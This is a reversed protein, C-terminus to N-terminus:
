FRGGIGSGAIELARLGTTSGKKPLSLGVIGVGVGVLGVAVLLQAALLWGRRRGLRGFLPLQRADLLPAWLFKFVYFFTLYSM